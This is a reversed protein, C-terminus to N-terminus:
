VDASIFQAFGNRLLRSSLSLIVLVVILLIGSEGDSLDLWTERMLSREASEVFAFSGNAPELRGRAALLVLLALKFHEVDDRAGFM